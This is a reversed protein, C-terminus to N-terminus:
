IVVFPFVFCTRYMKWFKRCHAMTEPRITRLLLARPELGYYHSHCLCRAARGWLLINTPTAYREKIQHIQEADLPKIDLHKEMYKLDVKTQKPEKPKPPAEKKAETKNSAKDKSDVPL